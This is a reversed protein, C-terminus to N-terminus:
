YMFTAWYAPCQHSMGKIRAVQSASILFILNWLGARPFIKALSWRWYLWLLSSIHSLHYLVALVFGQTWVGTGGFVIYIFLYYGSCFPSSTHNLCYLVQIECKLYLVAESALAAPQWGSKCLAWWTACFIYDL